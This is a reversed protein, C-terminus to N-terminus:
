RCRIGGACSAAEEMPPIATGRPSCDLAREYYHKGAKEDGACFNIASLRLLIKGRKYKENSAEVSSLADNLYGIAAACNSRSFEVEAKLSYITSLLSHDKQKTYFTLAADLANEDNVKSTLRFDIMAKIVSHYHDTELKKRKDNGASKDAAEVATNVWRRAQGEDGVSAFCLALFAASRSAENGEAFVVFEGHAKAFYLAASDLQGLEYFARGINSLCRAAGVGNDIKRATAFGKRYAEIARQMEGDLFYRYARSGYVDDQRPASKKPGACHPLSVLTLALVIIIRTIHNM